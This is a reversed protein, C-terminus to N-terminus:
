KAAKIAELHKVYASNGVAYVEAKSVSDGAELRGMMLTAKVVPRLEDLYRSQADAEAWSKGLKSLAAAIKDADIMM